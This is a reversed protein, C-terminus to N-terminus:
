ESASGRAVKSTVKDLSAHPPIPIPEVATSSAMTEIRLLQHASFLLCHTTYRHTSQHFLSRRQHKPHSRLPDVHQLPVCGMSHEVCGLMTVGSVNQGKQRHWWVWTTSGRIGFHFCVKRRWCGTEITNENSASM